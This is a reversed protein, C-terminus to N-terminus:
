FAAARKIVPARRDPWMVGTMFDSCQSGNPLTYAVFNCHQHVLTKQLQQQLRSKGLSEARFDLYIWAEGVVRKCRLQKM